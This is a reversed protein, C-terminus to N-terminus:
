IGRKPKTINSGPHSLTMCVLPTKNIDVLNGGAKGHTPIATAKEKPPGTPRQAKKRTSASPKVAGEKIKLQEAKLQAELEAIRAKAAAKVAAAQAKQNAKTKKELAVVESSRRSKPADVIGPRSLSNKMCTEVM